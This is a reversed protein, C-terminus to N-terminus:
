AAHTVIAWAGAAASAVYSWAKTAVATAAPYKVVWSAWLKTAILGAGFAQPWTMLSSINYAWFADGTFYRRHVRKYWPLKAILNERVKEVEDLTSDVTDTSM